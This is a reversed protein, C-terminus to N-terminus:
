EVRSPGYKTPWCTICEILGIGHVMNIVEFIKIGSFIALLASRWLSFPRMRAVNSPGYFDFGYLHARLASTALPFVYLKPHVFESERQVQDVQVFQNIAV